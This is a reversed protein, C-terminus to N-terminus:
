VSRRRRLLALAALGIMSLSAPEPVIVAAARNTIRINDIAFEDRSGGGSVDDSSWRLFLFGSDPLGLGSLELSRAFAVWGLTDAAEPSTLDAAPVATFNVGDISYSFNLSNARAQDNLVWADYSVSLLDVIGGTTNQLRLEFAGPTFDSGSPQFGLGVDGGGHNFAYVGGDTVGGASPGRAFDGTSKSDGFAMTSDSVGIVRWNDSDLQNAAPVPVFGGASFGSFDIALTQGAGPVVDATVPPPPPPPPPPDAPTLTQGSNVSGKTNVNSIWPQVFDHYSNGTGSLQLSGDAPASGGEIIGVDTSTLGAAPGNSATLTGEYSLFMLVTGDRVLAFGDNTGNELGNAPLTLSFIRFDGVLDGATFSSLSHTSGYVLGTNGNYLTISITALEGATLSAPAVVEIFENVDTGVNDYHFENIWVNADTTVASAASAAGLIAGAALTPLMLRDFRSRKRNM